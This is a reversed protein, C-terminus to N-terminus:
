AADARMSRDNAPCNGLPSPLSPERLGGDDGVLFQMLEHPLPSCAVDCCTPTPVGHFETRGADGYLHVVVGSAHGAGLHRRLWGALDSQRLSLGGEDVSEARRDLLRGARFWAPCVGNLNQALRELFGLVVQREEQEIRHPPLPFRSPV